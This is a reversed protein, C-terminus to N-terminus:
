FVVVSEASVGMGSHVVSSFPTRVTAILHDAAAIIRNTLSVVAPDESLLQSADATYPKDLSPYDEGVAEFKDELAAIADGILSHLTKLTKFTM